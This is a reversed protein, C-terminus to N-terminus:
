VMSNWNEVFGDNIDLSVMESVWNAGQSQFFNMLQVKDEVHDLLRKNAAFLKFGLLPDCDTDAGM